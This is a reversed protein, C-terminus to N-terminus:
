EEAAPVGNVVLGTIPPATPVLIASARRMSRLNVQGYRAVFLLVNCLSALYAGDSSGLAPPADILVFQYGADGPLRRVSELLADMAGSQMLTSAQAFRPGAVLVELGPEGAVTQVSEALSRSGSLAEGLGAATGLGFRRHLTPRHLDADVLLVRTGGRALMAALNAATTSRGEGATASTLLVIVVSGRGGYARIKDALEGAASAYLGHPEALVEPRPPGSRAGAHAARIRPLVAVLGLGSEREAEALSWVELELLYMVLAALLAAAAGISTGVTFSLKYRHPERTQPVAPPDIVYFGFAKLAADVEASRLVATQVADLDEDVALDLEPLQDKIQAIAEASSIRKQRNFERQLAAQRSRAIAAEAQAAEVLHRDQQALQRAIEQQAAQASRLAPGDPGIKQALMASQEAAQALETHLRDVVARDVGHAQSELADTQGSKALSAFANARTEALRGVLSAQNLARALDVLQPDAVPEPAALQTGLRTYSKKTRRALKRAARSMSAESAGASLTVSGAAGSRFAQASGPRGQDAEQRLEAQQIDRELADLRERLVISVRATRETRLRLGDDEAAAVAATVVALALRPDKSLFSIEMMRTKPEIDIRLPALSQSALEAGESRAHKGPRITVGGFLKDRDRASLRGAIEQLFTYGLMLERQDAMGQKSLRGQGNVPAARLFMQLRSSARYGTPRLLPALLGCVMGLVLLALGVGRRRIVRKRAAEQACDALLEATASVSHAAQPRHTQEM